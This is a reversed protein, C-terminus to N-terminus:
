ITYKTKEPKIRYIMSFTWWFSRGMLTELTRKKFSKMIVHNFDIDVIRVHFLEKERFISVVEFIIGSEMDNCIFIQGSKLNRPEVYYNEFQYDDILM